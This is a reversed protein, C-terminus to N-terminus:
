WEKIEGYESHIRTSAVSTEELTTKDLNKSGIHMNKLESSSCSYCIWYVTAKWPTYEKMLM